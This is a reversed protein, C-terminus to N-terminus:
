TWATEKRNELTHQLSTLADAWPKMHRSVWRDYIRQIPVANIYNYRLRGDHVVTVLEAGELVKLHQMVAFRSLGSFAEALEGTTRPGSM